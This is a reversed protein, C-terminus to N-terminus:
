GHVAPDRPPALAQTPFRLRRNRQQQAAATRLTAGPAVEMARSSLAVSAPVVSDAARGSRFPVPSVATRPGEVRLPIVAAAPNWSAHVREMWRTDASTRELAMASGLWLALSIFFATTTHVM